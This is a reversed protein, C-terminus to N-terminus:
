ADNAEGLAAALAAIAARAVAERERPTLLTEGRWQYLEDEIASEVREVVADSVASVDLPLPVHTGKKDDRHWRRPHDPWRSIKM